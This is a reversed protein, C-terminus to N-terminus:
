GRAVPRAPLRLYSSCWALPSPAPGYSALCVDIALRAGLDCVGNYDDFVVVGGPSIRPLTFACAERTSEFLNADIHVFAFRPDLPALKAFTTAFLGVHVVLRDEVGLARARQALVEPRGARRTSSGPGTAATSPRRRPRARSRTSRTSGRRSGTAALWCRRDVPLDLGRLRRMRDRRRRRKPVLWWAGLLAELRLRPMAVRAGTGCM